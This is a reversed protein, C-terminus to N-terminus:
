SRDSRAADIADALENRATLVRRATAEFDPDRGDLQQGHLVTQLLLLTELTM